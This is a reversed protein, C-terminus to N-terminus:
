GSEPSVSGPYWGLRVFMYRSLTHKVMLVQFTRLQEPRATDPRNIKQEKSLRSDSANTILAGKALALLDIMVVLVAEEFM